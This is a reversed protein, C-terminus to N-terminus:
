SPVPLSQVNPAQAHVAVVGVVLAEEVLAHRL